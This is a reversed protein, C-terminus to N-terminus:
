EPDQHKRDLVAVEAVRIEFSYANQLQKDINESSQGRQNATETSSTSSLSVL